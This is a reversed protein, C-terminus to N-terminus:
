TASVDPPYQGEVVRRQVETNLTDLVSIVAKRTASARRELADLHAVVEELAADSLAAPDSLRVDDVAVEAARRRQVQDPPEVDVLHRSPAAAHREAMASSLDDVLEGNSRSRAVERGGRRRELDARLLDLRGQLLRRLYSVEREELRADERRDHLEDNSLAALGQTFSPNLVRDLRRRGDVRYDTM